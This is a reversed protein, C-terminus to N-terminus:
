LSTYYLPASSSSHLSTQKKGARVSSSQLHLLLLFSSLLVDSMRRLPLPVSASPSLCAIEQAAAQLSNFRMFCCVLSTKRLADAAPVLLLLERLLLLMMLRPFHSSFCSSESSQKKKRDFRKEQHRGKERQLQVIQKMPLLEPTDLCRPVRVFEREQQIYIDLARLLPSLICRCPM